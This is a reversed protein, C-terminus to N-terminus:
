SSSDHGLVKRVFALREPNLHMTDNYHDKDWQAAGGFPYQPPVQVKHVRLYYKDHGFHEILLVEFEREVRALHCNADCWDAVTDCLGMGPSFTPHPYAGTTAWELWETLFRKLLPTM